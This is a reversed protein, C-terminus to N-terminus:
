RVGSHAPPRDAGHGDRTTRVWARAGRGGAIRAFVALKGAALRPAAALSRYVAPPAGAVRLGGLVYGAQGAATAVGALALPRRGLLTAGALAGATLLGLASQPPVFQEAGAHLLHPDRRRLGALVLRGGTRRALTANGTEWRLQQARAAAETRPMPSTVRASEVYAVAVGAEVLALHYEADETVSFSRWPLERLLSARFAM